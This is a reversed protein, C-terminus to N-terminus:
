YEAILVLNYNSYMFMTCYQAVWIGALWMENFVYKDDKLSLKLWIICLFINMLLMCLERTNKFKQSVKDVIIFLCFVVPFTHTLRYKMPHSDDWIFFGYIIASFWWTRNLSIIIEWGGDLFELKLTDIISNVEEENMSNKTLRFLYVFGRVNEYLFHLLQYVLIKFFSILIFLSSCLALSNQQTGKLIKNEPKQNVQSDYDSYTCNLKDVARM